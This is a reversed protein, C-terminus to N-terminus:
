EWVPRVEVSGCRVSPIRAAWGIAEDLDAVDIIYYGGFQEKTEAFPGDTTMTEGDRVRVTTATTVPHLRHGAVLVNAEELAKNLQGYEAFMQGMAEESMQAEETENASILLMYKVTTQGQRDSDTPTVKLPESNSDRHNSDPESM